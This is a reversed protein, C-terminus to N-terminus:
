LLAERRPKDSARELDAARDNERKSGGRHERLRRACCWCLRHAREVRADVDGDSRRGEEYEDRDPAPAAVPALGRDLGPAVGCSGVCFREGRFRELAGGLWCRFSLCIVVAVM